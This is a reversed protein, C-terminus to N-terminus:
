NILNQIKLLYKEIPEISHMREKIKEFDEITLNIGWNIGGQIQGTMKLDDTIVIGEFNLKTELLKVYEFSLSSPNNNDINSNKIHGLMIIEAGANIGSIFPIFDTTQLAPISHNIIPFTEHSDTQTSGHGPFHKLVSIIGVKKQARVIESIYDAVIEPDSSYTRNYLFSDSDYGVDAVPGLIVNIGYSKLLQARYTAVMYAFKLDKKNGIERASLHSYKDWKIRVVDGGEQDIAILINNDVKRKLDTTLKTLQNASKINQELLIVGRIKNKTLFNITKQSLVIDPISVIFMQGPASEISHTESIVSALFNITQKERYIRKPFLLFFSLNVGLLFTLFVLIGFKVKHKKIM